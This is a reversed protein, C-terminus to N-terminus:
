SNISWFHNLLSNIGQDEVSEFPPQPRAKIILYMSCRHSACSCSYPGHGLLFNVLDDEHSVALGDPVLGVLERAPDVHREVLLADLLRASGASSQFRFVPLEVEGVRGHQLAGDDCEIVDCVLKVEVPDRQVLVPAQVLSVVALELAPVLFLGSEFIAFILDELPAAAIVIRRREEVPVVLPM